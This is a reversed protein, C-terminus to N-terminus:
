TIQQNQVPASHEQLYVVHAAYSEAVPGREVDAHPYTRDYIRVFRQEALEIAGIQQIALGLRAVRRATARGFYATKLILSPTDVILADDRDISANVREGLESQELKNLNGVFRYASDVLRKSTIADPTLREFIEPEAM